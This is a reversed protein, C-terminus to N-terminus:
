PCPGWNALLELLDSAGVAGDGDFDPPGGPDSGWAGLLALLDSPGVSGDSDLDAPCVSIEFLNEWLAQNDFNFIMDSDWTSFDSLFVIEGAGLEMFGISIPGVSWTALVRFDKNDSHLDDNIAAGQITEVLHGLTM